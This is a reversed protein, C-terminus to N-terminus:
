LSHLSCEFCRLAAAAFPLHHLLVLGMRVDAQGAMTCFEEPSFKTEKDIAIM